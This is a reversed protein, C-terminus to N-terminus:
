ASPEHGRPGADAGDGRVRRYLTTGLHFVDEFYRQNQLALAGLGFLQVAIALAALGFVFTHPAQEYAAAWAASARPLVWLDQPMARYQGAVHIIMWTQAYLSALLVLLAPVMFFMAPRFMYGALVVATLQRMIRISSRRQSGAALQPGWDLHAPVEEVTANLALAKRIIESNIEMGTSRLDLARLFPGDYARVLGTVTSLREPSAVSLLRNAWVSMAHRFWPVNSVRGGEMYPSAIVITAASASMRALLRDVHDPAYSLDADLAVIVDGHCRAIGSRLAQGLGRNSPHHVVHVNPRPGAFAEALRGTDDSSGDNVVVLEWRYRDELTRMHECVLTLNRRLVSSENYAPVILSVLPRTGPNV